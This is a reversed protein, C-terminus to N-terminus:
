FSKLIEPHEMLNVVGFGGLFLFWIVMVPGFFKGIFSTGFQQVVFIIVLIVSTMALISNIGLDLGKIQKLGEISAMVTLSPTYGDAILASAGIIAVLYLWKTKM